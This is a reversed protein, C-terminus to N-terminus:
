TTGEHYFSGTAIPGGGANYPVDKSRMWPDNAEIGQEPRVQSPLTVGPDAARPASHPNPSSCHGLGGAVLGRGGGVAATGEEVKPM